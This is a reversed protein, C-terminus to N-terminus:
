MSEDLCPFELAAAVTRCNLLASQDSLDIVFRSM